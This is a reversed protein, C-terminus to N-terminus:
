FARAESIKRMRKIRLGVGTKKEMTLLDGDQM